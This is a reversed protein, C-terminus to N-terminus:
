TFRSSMGIVNHLPRDHSRSHEQSLGGEHQDNHCPGRPPKGLFQCTDEVHRPLGYLGNKLRALPAGLGPRYLGLGAPRFFGELDDDAERFVVEGRSM